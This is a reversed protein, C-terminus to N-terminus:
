GRKKRRQRDEDGGEGPPLDRPPPPHPGQGRRGDQFGPGPRSGEGAPGGPGGPGLHGERVGGQRRRPGERLERIERFFKPAPMESIRRQHDEEVGNEEWFGRRQARDLFEWKQVEMLVQMAEHLPARQLWEGARQGIWGDDVAKQIGEMVQPRRAEEFAKRDQGAGPFRKRLKEGRKRMQQHVRPGLFHRQERESMAKYALREEPTLHEIVFLKEQEIVERRDELSERTEPPMARMRDMRQRMEAKEEDTLREWWARRQDDEAVGAQGAEPTKAQVPNSTQAPAPEQLLPLTLSLLACFIM